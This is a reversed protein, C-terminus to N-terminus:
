RSSEYAETLWHVVQDDVDAATTLRVAHVVHSANAPFHRTIRSHEVTRPLYFWLAEWRAMPRLQAFTAPGKMLVGVSVPEVIAEDFSDIISVIARVIPAEFPPGSALYDDLTMAPSCEHSQKNRAFRRRCSPCTWLAMAWQKM